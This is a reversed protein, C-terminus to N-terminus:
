DIDDVCRFGTYQNFDDDTMFNRYTTTATDPSSLYSGGRVVKYKGRGLNQPADLHGQVEIKEYWDPDYTTSTWEQVNGSMDQLAKQSSEANYMQSHMLSEFSGIPMTQEAETNAMGPSYHEGYPYPFGSAGKAAREWEAETPLRKGVWKAFAKADRYSVNVVPHNEMEYPVQGDTWHPPARHSTAKVFEYYDGNSVEYKDIYYAPMSVLVAPKEVTDVLRNEEILQATTFPSVWRNDTLLPQGELSENNSLNTGLFFNGPPIFVMGENDHFSAGFLYPTTLIFYGMDGRIREIHQWPISLRQQNKALRLSFEQDRLLSFDLARDLGVGKLYGQLGGPGWVDVIDNTDITFNLNGRSLQIKYTEVLFPFRDGDWLVISLVKAGVIPAVTGRKKLLAFNIARPDVMTPIYEWKRFLKHLFTKNHAPRRELFRIHETPMKGIYNQGNRTVYQMKGTSMTPLFAIASVEKITFDIDGFPYNMPPLEEFRGWVKTGDQLVLLDDSLESAHGIDAWQEPTLQLTFQDAYEEAIGLTSFALLIVIILKKTYLM